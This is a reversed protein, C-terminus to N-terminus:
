GKNGDDNCLQRGGGQGEVEMWAEMVVRGSGVRHDFSVLCMIMFGGMGDAAASLNRAGQCGVASTANTMVVDRSM